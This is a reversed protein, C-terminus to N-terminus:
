NIYLKILSAVIIGLIGPSPGKCHRSTAPLAPPGTILCPHPGLRMKVKCQKLLSYSHHILLICQSFHLAAERVELIKTVVFSGKFTTLPVRIRIGHHPHPTPLFDQCIM